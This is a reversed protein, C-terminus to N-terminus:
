HCGVLQGDQRGLLGGYRWEYTELVLVFHEIVVQVVGGAQRAEATRGNGLDPCDRGSGRLTVAVARRPRAVVAM